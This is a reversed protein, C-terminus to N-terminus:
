TQRRERKREKDRQHCFVILLFLIVHVRPRLLFLHWGSSVELPLCIENHIGLAPALPSVPASSLLFSFFLFSFCNLSVSVIFLFLIIHVGPRLFFLHWGSSLELPLHIENHIGLSCSCSPFCSCFIFSFICFVISPPCGFIYM